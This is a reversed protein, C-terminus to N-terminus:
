KRKGGKRTSAPVAVATEVPATTATERPAAVATEPPTIDIAFNGAVMQAGVENSVTREDGPAYNGNPGCERKTMKIRM